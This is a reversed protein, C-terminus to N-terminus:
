KKGHEELPPMEYRVGHRLVETTQLATLPYATRLGEPQRLDFPEGLRYWVDATIVFMGRTWGAKRRSSIIVYDASPVGVWKGTVLRDPVEPGEQLERRERRWRSRTAGSIRRVVADVATLVPDGLPEDVVYSGLRVCGSLVIYISVLGTPTFLAFGFFSLMSLMRLTPMGVEAIDRAEGRTQKEAVNFAAVNTGAVAPRMYALYGSVGVAAGGLITVLASAAAANAMPLSYFRTWYRGPALCLVVAALHGAWKTFTDALHRIM